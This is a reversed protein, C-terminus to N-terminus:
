FRTGGSLHGSPFLSHFTERGKELHISVEDLVELDMNELVPVTASLILEELSFFKIRTYDEEQHFSVQIEGTERLQELYL